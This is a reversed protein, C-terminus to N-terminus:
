GSVGYNEGGSALLIARTTGIDSVLRHLKSEAHFLQEGLNRRVIHVFQTLANEVDEAALTAVIAVAATLIGDGRRLLCANGSEEGLVSARSYRAIVTKLFTVFEWWHSFLNGRTPVAMM